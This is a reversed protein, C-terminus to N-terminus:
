HMKSMLEAFTPFISMVSCWCWWDMKHGVWSIISCAPFIGISIPVLISRISSELQQRQTKTDM